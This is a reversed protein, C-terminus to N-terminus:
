QIQNKLKLCSDKSEDLKKTLQEMEEAQEM